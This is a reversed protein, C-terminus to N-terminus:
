SAGRELELARMLTQRMQRIDACAASLEDCLAGDVPLTGLHALKAIQNVNQSLRSQGLVALAHALAAEDKVPKRARRRPRSQADVGFVREKIFASISQHGALAELKAREDASLRLSFPAPRPGRKNTENGSM